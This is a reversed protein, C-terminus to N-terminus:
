KIISTNIENPYFTTSLLKVLLNYCSFVLVYNLQRTGHYMCPGVYKLLGNLEYTQIARGNNFVHSKTSIKRLRIMLRMLRETLRQEVKFSHKGSEGRFEVEELLLDDVHRIVNNVFQHIDDFIFIRLNCLKVRFKLIRESKIVCHFFLDYLEFLHDGLKHFVVFLLGSLFVFKDFLLLLFKMLFILLNREFDVLDVFEFIDEFKIKVTRSVCALVTLLFDTVM